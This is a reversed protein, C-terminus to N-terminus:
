TYVLDTMILSTVQSLYKVVYRSTYFLLKFCLSDQPLLKSCTSTPCSSSSIIIPKESCPTSPELPNKLACPTIGAFRSQAAAIPSM